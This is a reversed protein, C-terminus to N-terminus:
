SKRFYKLRYLLLELRFCCLFVFQIREKWRLESIDLRDFCSKMRQLIEAKAPRLEDKHMAYIAMKWRWDSFARRQMRKYEVSNRGFEQEMIDLLQLNTTQTHFLKPSIHTTISADHNQYYYRANSFAARKAHIMYLREDVEDTNMLIPGNKEPWSMNIWAERRYIGGNCGISWEPMTEKVLDRTAYIRTTDFESVPLITTTEGTTLNVFHMQPYVIDAATEIIRSLQVELYTDDLLDDIDLPVIFQGKSEYVAHDRPQKASGSNPQTFCRVRADKQALRKITEYTGDDSGDDVVVWEWHDYSQRCLCNYAPAVFAKGNYVPTVISILPKANSHNEM